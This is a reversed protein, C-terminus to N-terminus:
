EPILHCDDFFMSDEICAKRFSQTSGPIQMTIIQSVLWALLAACYLQGWSKQGYPGYPGYPGESNNYLISPCIWVNQSLLGLIMMDGFDVHGLIMVDWFWWTGFDDNILIM